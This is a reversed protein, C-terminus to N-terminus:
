WFKPLKSAPVRKSKKKFNHYVLLMCLKLQSHKAIDFWVAYLYYPSWFAYHQQCYNKNINKQLPSLFTIHLLNMWVTLGLSRNSEMKELM